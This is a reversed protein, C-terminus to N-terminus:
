CKLVFARKLGLPGAYHRDFFTASTQRPAPGAFRSPEWQVCCAPCLLSQVVRKQSGIPVTMIVGVIGFLVRGCSDGNIVDADGGKYKELYSRVDSKCVANYVYGKGSRSVENLVASRVGVNHGHSIKSTIEGCGDSKAIRKITGDQKSAPLLTTRVSCGICCGRDESTCSPRSINSRRTFFAQPPFM